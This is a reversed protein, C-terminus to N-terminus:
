KAPNDFASRLREVRRRNVGFDYYGSRSASRVHIIPQQASFYFEVDDVFRFILSRFEAHLIKKEVSVLRVGRSKKLIDILKQRANEFSGRYVFPKIFHQDDNSLSSVCNPSNPCPQLKDANTVTDAAVHTTGFLVCMFISVDKLIVNKM